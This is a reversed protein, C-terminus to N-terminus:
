LSAIISQIGQNKPLVLHYWINLSRQEGEILDVSSLVRLHKSTAKFSLHIAESIESVTAEKNKKLFKLVELRRKNALAKLTRELEKM